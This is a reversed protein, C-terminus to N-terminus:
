QRLDGCGRLALLSTKVVCAIPEMSLILMKTREGSCSRKVACGATRIPKIAWRTPVGCCSSMTRVVSRKNRRPWSMRAMDRPGGVGGGQGRLRDHDVVLREGLDAVAPITLAQRDSLGGSHEADVRPRNGLPQCSGTVLARSWDRAAAEEVRELPADRPQQIRVGIACLLDKLAQALLSVAAADGDQAVVDAQYPWGLQGDIELQVEGGALARLDVPADEAGDPDAVRAAAEGEEDEHEGVAPHHVDLEGECLRHLM